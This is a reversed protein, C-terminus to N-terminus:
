YNTMCHSDYSATHGDLDKEEIQGDSTKNSKDPLRKSRDVLNKTMKDTSIKKSNDFLIIKLKNRRNM